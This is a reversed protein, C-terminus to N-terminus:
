TPRWPCRRRSEARRTGPSGRPRWPCSPRCARCAGIAAIRQGHADAIGHEVDHQRRAKEIAHPAGAQDQLLAQGLQLIAMGADDGLDAAFAQHHADLGDHRVAVEHRGRPRLVQQDIAAPSLTTRSSGGSITVSASIPSATRRRSAAQPSISRWDDCAAPLRRPRAALRRMVARDGPGRCKRSRLSMGPESSRPMSSAAALMLFSRRAGAPDRGARGSAPRTSAIIKSLGEVRVRTDKSTPM